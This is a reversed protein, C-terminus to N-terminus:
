VASVITARSGTDNAYKPTSMSRHGRRRDVLLKKVQPSHRFYHIERMSTSNLDLSSLKEM